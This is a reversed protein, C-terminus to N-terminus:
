ALFLHNCNEMAGSYRCQADPLVNLSDELVRVATRRAKNNRIYVQFPEKMSLINMKGGEVNMPKQDRAKHQSDFKELILTVVIGIVSLNTSYSSCFDVFQFHLKKHGYIESQM